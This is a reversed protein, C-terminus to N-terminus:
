FKKAVGVVRKFKDNRLLILVSTLQLKPAMLLLWLLPKLVLVTNTCLM